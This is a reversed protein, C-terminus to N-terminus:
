CGTVFKDKHILGKVLCWINRLFYKGVEYLLYSKLFEKKGEVIFSHVIQVRFDSFRFANINEFAINRFGYSRFWIVDIATM